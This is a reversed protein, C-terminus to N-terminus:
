TPSTPAPKVVIEPIHDLMDENHVGALEYYPDKRLHNHTTWIDDESDEEVEESETFNETSTELDLMTHGYFERHQNERELFGDNFMTDKQFRYFLPFKNLFWKPIRIRLVKLLWMCLLFFLIGLAPFFTILSLELFMMQIVLSSIDTEQDIKKINSAAFFITGCTLGTVLLSTTPWKRYNERTEPERRKKLARRKRKPRKIKPM